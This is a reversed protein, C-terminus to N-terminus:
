FMDIQKSAGPKPHKDTRKRGTKRKSSLGEKLERDHIAHNLKLLRKLVEKRAAPTITYRIRDNEPLYDVEYFDHALDLDEWSYARLVTQEMEQHLRRLKCIEKVADNFPCVGETKALHKWLNVTEKGYRKQFEKVKLLPIKEMDQSSFEKLDPNHFQNYTKTLGLKITLMLNRRFEHYEEGIIELTSQIETSLNQPFPFTEFTSSPTYRLGVGGMTSSYKWAWQKHFSSNLISFYYAQDLTIIKLTHMFIQNTHSFSFNCFKSVESCILVRKLSKLINYLKPRKDAHIWWKQPLPKRLKFKGNSGLRTREPKVKEELIKFCEPYEQAKEIPYDLFHIVWRSPTQDPRSNLDQGNLYPHLVDKNKPVKKILTRADKPTLVFGKGLVYSGVFSKNENQKLRYPNGISDSDDLYTTILDVKKRDLMRKGKFDGKKIAILSVTVAAQGPWPTSRAAFNINGGEKEIVQLSGERAAGQAITNTAILGLFSNMKIITFNRRFFYGVLDIAGAPAFALKLWNLYPAGFAGKLGRNGLFPPNGLICDFGQQAFIEPFELFYHFFRKEAAVGGAKGAKMPHIAKTGSLYDMYEEYTVIKSVNLANKPIFFQAVQIDALTKLRMWNSGSTMKNYERRKDRIEDISNEPLHNFRDFLQLINKLSGKLADEFNFHIQEREKRERKNRKALEARIDKDDEPMKKFAQDPIGSELEEKHALGVIADGCKIHHDLFNLPEGPNHAELWLAVKCLEVALPNKDVGYICNKIVDRIARRLPAPSPQDEGTRVKALEAGIKRAANLLIHGSGCAVDCVKISLLANEKAPTQDSSNLRDQIIYDLSHKILPQVLEDPTYHSGSASRGRGKVFDFRWASNAMSFQPDYELLREYVSGFEEVNLAAYNIRMKQGTTKNFFVSLNRLCGLLVQNDLDCSNLIGIANYGFLDGALPRIGLHKGKAQSEFLHFTNKLAAWLDSFRRDTLYPKESLKKIRDISYYAYYIERKAKDADHAFILNREEIVMLFLLRYILRLQFQYYATASMENQDIKERLSGNDPNELFGNALALISREVAQSLGARIRSGSDLADQHYKEILSEAGLDTKLPMRSSHVLRYMIAFDAYHAEEMMTELDFEIFSLKILRSSDRLLRLYIGNTVLTYLHETLNIYEQLLAHPSMRPGSGTRKKDLSDNFGAIHIPFRDRNAACHSIAYSKGHVSQAKSLEADYGLLGLLPVIWYRRTETAGHKSASVKAKQRKFIRWLDQADAWTRAIEDKVKTKADFGFDKALQGPIDGQEIKYLIDASLIAGEIRITTYKM